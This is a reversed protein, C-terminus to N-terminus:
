DAVVRPEHADSWEAQRRVEYLGPPLLASGHDATEPRGVVGHDLSVPRGDVRLFNGGGAGDDRFLTAGSRIHHSHGTTEGYALFIPGKTKVPKAGPPLAAVEEIFIDGQHGQFNTM